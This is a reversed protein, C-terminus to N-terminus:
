INELKTDNISVLSLKFGNKLRVKRFSANVKKGIYDKLKDFYKQVQYCELIALGSFREEDPVLSGYTIRVMQSIEGTTQNKFNLKELNLIIIEMNEM